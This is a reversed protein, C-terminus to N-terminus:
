LGIYKKALGLAVDPYKGALQMIAAKKDTIAPDQMIKGAELMAMQMREAKEAKAANGISGSVKQTLSYIEEELMNLRRDRLQMIIIAMLVCIVASIVVNFLGLLLLDNMELM